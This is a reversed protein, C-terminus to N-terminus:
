VCECLCAELAERKCVLAQLDATRAELVRQKMVVFHQWAKCFSDFHSGFELRLSRQAAGSQQQFQVNRERRVASASCMLEPPHAYSCVVISVCVFLFLFPFLPGCNVPNSRIKRM